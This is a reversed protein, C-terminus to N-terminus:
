PRAVKHMTYRRVTFSDTAEDYGTLVVKEGRSAVGSADELRCNLDRLSGTRDVLRAMGGRATIEHVVEAEESVLSRTQVEYSEVSPLLRAMTKSTWRTGFISVVAAISIRSWISASEWAMATCMGTVGWLLGLSVLILALPAEGIGFFSLASGFPGAASHGLHAHDLDAHIVDGAHAADVAGDIGADSGAPLGLAM